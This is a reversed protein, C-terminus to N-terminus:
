TGPRQPLHRYALNDVKAAKFEDILAESMVYVTPKQALRFLPPADELKRTDLVIVPVDLIRGDTAARSITSAEENLADFGGVPNIMAYDTSHVRGKHNILEFPLYEIKQGVCAKEIIARGISNFILYGPTNGIFGALQLGRYKSQLRIRAPSPMLKRAALGVAMRTDGRAMGEPGTSIICLRANNLNGTTEVRVYDM